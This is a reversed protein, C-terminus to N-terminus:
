DTKLYMGTVEVRLQSPIGQSQAIQTSSLSTEPDLAVVFFCPDVCTIGPNEPGSPHPSSHHTM